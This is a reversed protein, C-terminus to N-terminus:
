FPIDDLNVDDKESDDDPLEFTLEGDAMKKGFETAQKRTLKEVADVDYMQELVGIDINNETMLEKLRTIMKDSLESKGNEYPLFSVIKAYQNGSSSESHEVTIKCKKGELTSIDFDDPLEAYKCGLIGTVTKTLKSKKSLKASCYHWIGLNETGDETKENTEVIMKIRPGYESDEQEIEVVEAEYFGEPHLEFSSKSIVISM